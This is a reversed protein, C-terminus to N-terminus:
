KDAPPKAPRQLAAVLDANTAPRRCTCDIEGHDLPDEPPRYVCSLTWLERPDVQAALIAPDFDPVAPTTPAPTTTLKPSHRTM